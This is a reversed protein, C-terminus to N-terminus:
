VLESMEVLAKSATEIMHILYNRLMEESPFFITNVDNHIAREYGEGIWESEVSTNVWQSGTHREVRLVVKTDYNKEDYIHTSHKNSSTTTM